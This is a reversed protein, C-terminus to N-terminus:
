CGTATPTLGTKTTKTSAPLNPEIKGCIDIGLAAYWHQQTAPARGPATRHTNEYRSFGILLLGVICILALSAYWNVPMQGRYTRGGGTTAAREM